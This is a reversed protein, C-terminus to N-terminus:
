SEKYTIEVISNNMEDIIKRCWSLVEFSNSEMQSISGDRHKIVLVSM